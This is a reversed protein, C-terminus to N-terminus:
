KAISIIAVPTTSIISSRASGITGRQNVHSVNAPAAVSTKAAPGAKKL